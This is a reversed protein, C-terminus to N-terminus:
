TPVVLVSVKSTGALILAKDQSLLSHGTGRKRYVVLLDKGKFEKTLSVIEAGTARALDDIGPGGGVLVIREYPFSGRPLLVPPRLSDFLTQYLHRGGLRSAVGFDVPPFVVAGYFEHNAVRALNETGEEEKLHFFDADEAGTAGAMYLAEELYEEPLGERLVVLIRKGPAWTFTHAQPM